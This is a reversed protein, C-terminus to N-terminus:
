EASEVYVLKVYGDSSSTGTLESWSSFTVSSDAYYFQVDYRNVIDSDVPFTVSSQNGAVTPTLGHESLFVQSIQLKQNNWSLTCNGSGMGTIMYNFGDYYPQAPVGTNTKENFEGEWVNRAEGTNLAVTFVADLTHVGAQSGTPTACLYLCLSGADKFGSDFELDCIDTVASRHSLTSAAFTHSLNSSSLTVTGSDKLKIRVTHAGVDGATANNKVYMGASEGLMVLRATLVYEIDSEYVRTPNGQAYNCVTVGGSVPSDGSETYFIRKYVNVATNSNMVLYNSSFLSGEDGYSAIVRKARSSKIYEAFLAVGSIIAAILALGVIAIILRKQTNIIKM